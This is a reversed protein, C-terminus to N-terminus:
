DLSIAEGGNHSIMSWYTSEDVGPSITRVSGDFFAVELGAPSSSQLLHQNADEPRPMVQFTRPVGRVSPITAGTVADKVPIVDNWGIDAFTARRTGYFERQYPDFMHLFNHEWQPLGVNTDPTCRSYYKESFAMTQSSGDPISAFFLVSGQLVHFNYAHSCKGHSQANVPNHECTIDLPNRYTKVVPFVFAFNEAETSNKTLSSTKPVGVYPTLRFFLLMDSNLAVKPVPASVLKDIKGGGDSALHHTGLIIQRLNNKNQMRFAARRVAQISVIVLSMLVGIIAIAIIVELLSIGKRIMM